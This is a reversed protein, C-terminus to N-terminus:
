RRNIRRLQHFIDLLIDVIDGVLIGFFALFISALILPLGAGLNSTAGSRVPWIFVIGVIFTLAALSTFMGQFAKGGRRSADEPLKRARLRDFFSLKALDKPCLIRGKLMRAKNVNVEEQCETCFIPEVERESM